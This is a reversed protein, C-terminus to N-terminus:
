SWNGNYTTGVDVMLGHVGRAARKPIRLRCNAYHARIPSRPCPRATPDDFLGDSLVSTPSRDRTGYSGNHLLPTWTSLWSKRNNRLCLNIVRLLVFVVRRNVGHWCRLWHRRARKPAIGFQVGEPQCSTPQHTNM